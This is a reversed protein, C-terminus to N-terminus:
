LKSASSSWETQEDKDLEKWLRALERTIDQAKMDPNDNKVGERNISCFYAYGTKKKPSENEDDTKKKPKKDKKPAPKEEDSEEDPKEKKPKAKKPVPKEEDSEEDDKKPKAKKPAPKEEDSEEDDKKPKAKKPAPKDEDLEKDDKKPVQKTPHDTKEEEYRAKDDAAMKAYRDLEAARGEDEKLEKWRKGLESMILSKGEEGLEEKVQPRMAACFFIYASRGRKPANPDKDSTKRGKKPSVMTALEEDSPAVYSEMEETYRAKDEAAEAELSALFKKDGSKTSAKLDNWMLGLESTVETAKAGEGLNAKAEERKKACFFIYASKGRKPKNPDKIKDSSRKTKVTVNNFAEINEQTNWKEVLEESGNDSLFKAVFKAIASQTFSKM